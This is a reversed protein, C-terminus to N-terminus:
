VGAGDRKHTYFDLDPPANELTGPLPEVKVSIFLPGARVVRVSDLELVFPGGNVSEIYKRLEPPTAMDLRAAKHFTVVAGRITQYRASIRRLTAAFQPLAIRAVLADKGDSLLLYVGHGAFRMCRIDAHRTTTGIRWFDRTREYEVRVRAIFGGGSNQPAM